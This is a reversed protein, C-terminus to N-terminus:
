ISSEIVQQTQTKFAVQLGNYDQNLNEEELTEVVGADGGNMGLNVEPSEEELVDECNEDDDEESLPTESSPSDQDSYIMMPAITAATGTPM